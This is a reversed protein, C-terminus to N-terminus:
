LEKLATSGTKQLLQSIFMTWYQNKDNKLWPHVWNRRQFLVWLTKYLIMSIKTSIQKSINQSLGEHVFWVFLFHFLFTRFFFKRNWLLIVVESSQDLHSLLKLFSKWQKTISQHHSIINHCSMPLILSWSSLLLLHLWIM